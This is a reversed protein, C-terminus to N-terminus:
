RSLASPETGTEQQVNRNRLYWIIHSLALRVAPVIGISNSIDRLGAPSRDLWCFMTRRKWLSALQRLRTRSGKSQRSPEPKSISGKWLLPTWVSSGTWNAIRVEGRM